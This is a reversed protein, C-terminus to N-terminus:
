VYPGATFVGSTRGREIWRSRIRRSKGQQNDTSIAEKLKMGFLQFHSDMLSRSNTLGIAMDASLRAVFAQVFAASYKKPDPDLALVQCKCTGWNTVINNGEVRWYPNPQQYNEGVFIVRAANAPLPFANSYESLPPNALKPLDLWEIAFSWNHTELLLDRIAPYFAKCMKAEITDDDLSIIANAGLNM